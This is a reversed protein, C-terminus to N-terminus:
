KSAEEAKTIPVIRENAPPPAPVAKKPAIVTLVGDSSLRSYVDKPDHEDPLVYRRVFHRSIFGHEDQKEEHKGEVVVTNDVTTVTIENPGFQQVDLNILFKEREDITTRAFQQNLDCLWPKRFGMRRLEAPQCCSMNRFLDDGSIGSGFNQDWLRSTRLPGNWWGDDWFDRYSLPVFPM